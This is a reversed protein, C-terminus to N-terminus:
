WSLNSPAGDVSVYKFELGEQACRFLCTIYCPPLEEQQDKGEGDSCFLKAARLFVPLAPHQLTGGPDRVRSTPPGSTQAHLPACIGRVAPWLSVDQAM